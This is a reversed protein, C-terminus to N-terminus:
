GSRTGSCRAFGPQQAVAPSPLLSRAPDVQGAPAHRQSAVGAISSSGLQWAQRAEADNRHPRPRRSASERLRVPSADLSLAGKVFGDYDVVAVRQDRQRQGVM